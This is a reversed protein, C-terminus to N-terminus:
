DHKAELLELSLIFRIANCIYDPVSFDDDIQAYLLQAFLGKGLYDSDIQHLIDLAMQPDDMKIPTGNEESTLLVYYGELRKKIAGNTPIKDLIISIMIKANHHSEIALDYEFTKLNVFVRCNSTMNQMQNGFYLQPNHGIIPSDKTPKSEIEKEIKEGSSSDVHTEIKSPPDNDTLAVCRTLIAKSKKFEGDSFADKKLFESM